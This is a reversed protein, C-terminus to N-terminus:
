ESRGEDTRFENSEQAPIINLQWQGYDNHTIEGKRSMLYLLQYIVTSPNKSETTWGANRIGELIRATSSPGLHTLVDMIYDHTSKQPRQAKKKKKPQKVPRAKEEQEHSPEKGWVQIITAKIEQLKGIREDITALIDELPVNNHM